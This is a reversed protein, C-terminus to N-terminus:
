LVSETDNPKDVENFKPQGFGIYLIVAIQVIAYSIIIANFYKTKDMLKSGLFIMPVSCAHLLIVTMWGQLTIPSMASSIVLSIFVYLCFDRLWKEAKSLDDIYKKRKKFLTRFYYYSANVSILVTAGSLIQLIVRIANYNDGLLFSEKLPRVMDFGGNKFWYFVGKFFPAVNVFSWFLYGESGSSASLNGESIAIIVPIFFILGFILGILIGYINFKIKRFILLILTTLILIMASNHIQIAMVLSAIHLFTYCVSSESKSKYASFLHIAAPLFIFAPEWLFGGNYIRLPSTWFILTFILMGKEHLIDRFINLLLLYSIIHFIIVLVMPSYPSDHIMLPFGILLQMLFGPNTGGGSRIKAFPELNHTEVFREGLSLLHEQDGGVQYNFSLFIQLALGTLFLIIIYNKIKM